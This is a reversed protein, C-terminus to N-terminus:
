RGQEREMQITKRLGEVLSTKPQWGLQKISSTDIKPEMIENKRYPLAGFNARTTKNDTLDKILNVIERITIM